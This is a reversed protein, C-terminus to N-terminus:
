SQPSTRKVLKLVDERRFLIEQQKELAPNPKIPTIKGQAIRRYLTARSMHLFVCVEKVTM